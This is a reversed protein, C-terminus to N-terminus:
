LLSILRNAFKLCKCTFGYGIYTMLCAMRTKMRVNKDSIVDKRYKKIREIFFSQDYDKNIHVCIHFIFSSIRSEYSRMIRTFLPIDNEMLIIIREASKIKEISMGSNEISGKRQRYFYSRYNSFAVKGAKLFLRYTTPMDEYILGKPYRINGFLSSLYMKSWANHDFDKQYFMREVAKLNDTCFVKENFGEAVANGDEPFCVCSTVSIESGTNNIMEYLREIHNDAIYDDSDVFVVYKGKMIDLASNRAESLGQNDKHIVRIRNDTDAYSDCIDGCRDPSGDDVLIIELNRYTQRCISDICEKIYKEVNYVPVIVSVLPMDMYTGSNKINVHENM